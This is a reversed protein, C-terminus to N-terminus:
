DNRLELSSFYKLGEFHDKTLRHTLTSYYTQLLSKPLKTKEVAYEIVANKHAQAWEYSSHIVQHFSLIQATKSEYSEKRTAILAFIFKKSTATHWASAIDISSHSPNDMYKLCHDGIIVFPDDQEFLHKPDGSYYRYQPQIKWFHQCLVKLLSVSTASETPLYITHLTPHEPRFFLRVSIVADTVGIGFESLIIYSDQHQLFEQSSILAIDVEGDRLKANIEVPMGVSVSANHAIIQNKIAFFLPYANSFDIIGLTIM